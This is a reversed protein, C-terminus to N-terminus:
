QLLQGDKVALRIRKTAEFDGLPNGDLVLFSAEFGNALRGVRRAPFVAKACDQSWMRLLERNTFVGLTRLHQVEAVSTDAVNDSGIVLKAGADRLVRLNRIQAAQLQPFIQQERRRLILSATTQIPTGRRAALRGDSPSIREVSRMGPLHAIQDAGANLAVRLDHATAVHFVARLKAAHAKQVIVPAFAPNLGKSGAFSPSRRQEFEESYLLFAKIFDPRQQRIIPWAETLDSVSDIIFYRKGKLTERTFGPYWGQALLRESLPVPHGGSGTLGGNAFTVDVTNPRNFYARWPDSFRPINSLIQVYFVGDKLYRANMRRNEAADALGLNHNHAECFPPVVYGGKLDIIKAAGFTRRQPRVFFLRNSRIEVTAARFMEGDFWQGNEFRLPQSPNSSRHSLATPSHCSAMSLIGVLLPLGHWGM